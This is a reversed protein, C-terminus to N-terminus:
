RFRQILKYCDLTVEVCQLFTTQEETSKLYLYDIDVIDSNDCVGDLNYNDLFLDSVTEGLEIQQDSITDPNESFLYSYARVKFRIRRKVFGTSGGKVPTNKVIQVAIVPYDPIGITQLDSKYVRGKSWDGLEADSKILSIVKDRVEKVKDSTRSM